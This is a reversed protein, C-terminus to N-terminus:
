SLANTEHKKKFQNDLNMKKRVPMLNQIQHRHIEHKHEHFIAVHSKSAQDQASSYVEKSAV